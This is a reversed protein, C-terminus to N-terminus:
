SPKYEELVSELIDLGKQLEAESITLPMLVRLVNNYLGAKLMILGRSACQALIDKADQESIPEKTERNKVLEIARMAGLGREDGVFDFRKKFGKFRDEVTRGIQIARAVLNEKEFIDFVALAAACALANGGYTGGMGGVDVSDLVEAKGVVASLPVGAALSKAVTMLDPVVGFHEVAFMKGTRGFGSQIEDLILVIGYTDCIKRLGPLFDPTPVIFGGEGQLAEVVIAAVKNPSTQTTLIRELADLCYKTLGQPAVGEPPRYSFPYPARYIEPVFPGFGTRYPTEKGTLSVAMYTRGHFALDFSIVASRKTYAKAAKVANEVAEAGSNFLIAKKPFRGPAVGILKECVKLYSEHAMVHFCIHLFKELQARIAEIVKPHNHGVNQVGIGGTFDIYSNGDVDKVTAGSASEIFLHTYPYPAKPVLREREAWLRKSKDTKFAQVKKEKLM